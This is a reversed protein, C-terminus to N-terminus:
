QCIRQVKGKLESKRKKELKRTEELWEQQYRHALLEFVPTSPRTSIGFTIDPPAPPEQKGRPPEEKRRIDHTLRFQTQEMATTLGSQVSRKNLSMFDKAAESKAAKRESQPTNWVMVVFLAPEIQVVYICNVKQLVGMWVNTRYEM